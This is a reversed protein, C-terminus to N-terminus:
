DRWTQRAQRRHGRRRHRWHGRCRQLREEQLTDLELLELLELSHLRSRRIIVGQGGYVGFQPDPNPRHGFAEPLADAAFQPQLTNLAGEGLNGDAVLARGSKHKDQWSNRIGENVTYMRCAVSDPANPNSEWLGEKTLHEIMDDVETEDRVRSADPGPDDAFGRSDEQYDAFTCGGSAITGM